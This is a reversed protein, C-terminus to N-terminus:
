NKVKAFENRTQRISKRATEPLKMFLLTTIVLLLIGAISLYIYDFNDSPIFNFTGAIIAAQLTMEVSTAFAISNAKKITNFAESAYVDAIMGIGLGGLFEFCLQLTGIIWQNLSSDFAIVVAMAILLVASGGFSVVYHLRRGITDITFLTVVCGLQRIIMFTMVGYDYDNEDVFMTAYKLRIINVCYNFALVSGIKLLIILYLPHLNGEDFIEKSSLEDEEVMSRLEEFESRISMTESSESRLAVMVLLAENFKRQRILQVPSKRAFFPVLIIGIVCAIIGIIGMWQISGFVNGEQDDFLTLIGGILMSSVILLNLSSITMGRLKQTLIESAHIMATLYACGHGFGILGRATM